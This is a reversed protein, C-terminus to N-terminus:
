SFKHGGDFQAGRALMPALAGLHAEFREADARARADVPVHVRRLQVLLDRAPVSSAQCERKARVINMLSSAPRSFCSGSNVITLRGVKLASGAVSPVRESVKMRISKLWRRTRM